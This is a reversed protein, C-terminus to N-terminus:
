GDLAEDTLPRNVTINEPQRQAKRYPDLEDCCDKCVLLGKINPDSKLDKRSLKM